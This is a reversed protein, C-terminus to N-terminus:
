NDEMAEFSYPAGRMPMYLNVFIGGDELPASLM